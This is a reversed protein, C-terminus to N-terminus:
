RASDPTSGQRKFAKRLLRVPTTMTHLTSHIAANHRINGAHEWHLRPDLKTAEMTAAAQVGFHRALNELTALWFRDEVRFGYVRMVVEWLPDSSRLLPQVQAVASGEEEYASFTIFASFMHGEPTMFTFSEDDAYLIVVGTSLRMGGPAPLNLVAVEGPKIGTLPAYFRNGRPWFKGFNERWTKVVEAPTAQAGTLRIRYTKQWMQGFGQLPGAAHRGEVNLGSLEPPLNSIELTALRQAWYAADRPASAHVSTKRKDPPLSPEDSM